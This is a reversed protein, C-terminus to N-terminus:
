SSKTQSSKPKGNDDKSPKKTKFLLSLLKYFWFVNLIALIPGAFLFYFRVPFNMPYFEPQHLYYQTYCVYYTGLCIRVVFFTFLLCLGNVLFLTPYRKELGGFKMFWGFHLFPTSAEFGLFLQGFFEM